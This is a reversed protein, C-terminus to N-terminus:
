HSLQNFLPFHRPGCTKISSMTKFFDSSSRIRYLSTHWSLPDPQIKTGFHIKNALKTLKPTSFGFFYPAMKKLWMKLRWKSNWFPRGKIYYITSYSSKHAVYFVLFPPLVWTEWVLSKILIMTRIHLKNPKAVIKSIWFPRWFLMKKM